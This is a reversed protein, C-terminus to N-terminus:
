VDAREIRERAAMQRKRAREAKSEETYTREALTQEYNASPQIICGRTGSWRQRQQQPPDPVVLQQQAPPNPVAPRQSASSGPAPEQSAEFSWRKGQGPVITFEPRSEIFARLTGRPIMWDLERGPIVGTDRHRWFFSPDSRGGDVQLCKQLLRIIEATRENEAGPEPPVYHAALPQRVRVAPGPNSSGASRSPSGSSLQRLHEVLEEASCKWHSQRFVLADANWYLLMTLVRRCAAASAEKPTRGSASASFALGDGAAFSCPMNITCVAQGAVRQETMQAQLSHFLPGGLCKPRTSTHNNLVTYWSINAHMESIYAEMAALPEGLSDGLWEAM